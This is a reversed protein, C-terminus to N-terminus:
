EISDRRSSGARGHELTEDCGPRMSETSIPALRLREREAHVLALMLFFWGWESLESSFPHLTMLFLYCCVGLLSALYPVLEAKEIAQGARLYTCGIWVLLTLLALGGFLGWDGVAQLYANHVVMMEQGTDSLSSGFGGGFPFTDTVWRAGDVLMKQRTPDGEFLRAVALPPVFAFGAATAVVIGLAAYAGALLALRSRPVSLWAVSCFAVTGLVWLMGTRSGDLAIVALAAAAGILSGISRRENFLFSLLFVPFFYAGSKWMVGPYSILFGQRGDGLQVYFDRLVFKALLFMALVACTAILSVRHLRHWSLDGLSVILLYGISFVGVLKVWHYYGVVTDSAASSFAAGLLSLVLFTGVFFGAQRAAGGLVLGPGAVTALFLAVATLGWAAWYGVPTVINRLDGLSALIFPVATLWVPISRASSSGNVSRNAM